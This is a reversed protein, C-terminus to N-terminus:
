MISPTETSYILIGSIDSYPLLQLFAIYYTISQSTATIIYTPMKNCPSALTLASSSMWQQVLLWQSCNIICTRQSRNLIYVYERNQIQFFDRFDRGQPDYVLTWGSQVNAQWVFVKGSPLLDTMLRGADTTHTIKYGTTLTYSLAQSSFGKWQIRTEWPKM